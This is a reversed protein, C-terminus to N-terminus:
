NKKKQSEKGLVAANYLKLLATTQEESSQPGSSWKNINIYEPNLITNSVDPNLFHKGYLYHAAQSLLIKPLSEQYSYPLQLLLSQLHPVNVCPIVRLSLPPNALITIIPITPHLYM